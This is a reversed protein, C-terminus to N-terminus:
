PKDFPWEGRSLAATAKELRKEPPSADESTGREAAGRAVTKVPAAPRRPGITETVENESDDDGAVLWQTQQDRIIQAERYLRQSLRGAGEVGERIFPRFLFSNLLFGNMLRAPFRLPKAFDVFLVVRTSDTENWAEHDFADDFILAKGEEWQHIEDAIRIGLLKQPEPIILGLHLRLIGNYPGRHPPLGQGPELISFMASVLGPVSQLLRWTDPCEGINNEVRHGYSAFPYTKWGRERGITEESTDGERFGRRADRDMMVRALEGRIVTWNRELELAFPFNRTDHVCPNGFASNKLNSQEARAVVAMLKRALAGPAPRVAGEVAHRSPDNENAHPQASAPVEHPTRAM